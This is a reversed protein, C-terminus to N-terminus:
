VKNTATYWYDYYNCSYVMTGNCDLVIIDDTRGYINNEKLKSIFSENIEIQKNRIMDVVRMYDEMENTDYRYTIFPGERIKIITIVYLRYMTINPMDFKIYVDMFGRWEDYVKGDVGDEEEYKENDEIPNNERFGVGGEHMLRYRLHSEIYAYYEDENKILTTRYKPFQIPYLKNLQELIEVNFSESQLSISYIDGNMLKVSINM